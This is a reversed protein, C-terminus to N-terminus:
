DQSSLYKKVKSFAPNRYAPAENVLQHCADDIMEIRARPLMRTLEQLNYQWDVTRDATGQVILLETDLPLFNQCQKHWTKMAGVWAVSLYRTQLPDIYDVFYIFDPDHSNESKKRAIRQTFKHMLAYLWRGKTRWDRPLILPAFLIRKDLKIPSLSQTEYRWLHNLLVACGTSQGWAHFPKPLWQHCAQLVDNLVDAYHDFSDIFIKEGSSLGHGPLDFILVAFNEELGLRIANGFLGTHDYYGHMVLLTGKPNPPLWYQTAIRLDGTTILGLAHKISPFETSSPLRYFELYAQLDTDAQWQRNQHLDAHLDPIKKVLATAQLQDFPM